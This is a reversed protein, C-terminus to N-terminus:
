GEGEVPVWPTGLPECHINRGAARYRREGPTDGAAHSTRSVHARGDALWRVSYHEDPRAPHAHLTERAPPGNELVTGPPPAAYAVVDGIEYLTDIDWTGRDM